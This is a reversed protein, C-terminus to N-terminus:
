GGKWICNLDPWYVNDGSGCLLGLQWREDVFAEKSDGQKWRSKEQGNEARCLNLNFLVNPQKLDKCLVRWYNGYFRGIIGITSVTFALSSLWSRGLELSTAGAEERSKM